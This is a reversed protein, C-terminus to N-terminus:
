RAHGGGWGGTLHVHAGGRHERPDIPDPPVVAEGGDLPHERRHCRLLGVDDTAGDHGRQPDLEVGDHREYLGDVRDKAAAIQRQNPRERLM